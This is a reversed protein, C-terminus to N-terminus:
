VGIAGLGIIGLKKGKIETGAFAKQKKEPNQLIGMTKTIRVGNSVVQSIM